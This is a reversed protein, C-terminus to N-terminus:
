RADGERHDDLRSHWFYKRPMESSPTMESAMMSGKQRLAWRPWESGTMIGASDVIEASEATKASM